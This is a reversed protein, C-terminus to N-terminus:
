PCDKLRKAYEIISMPATYKKEALKRAKEGLRKFVAVEHEAIRADIDIGELAAAAKLFCNAMGDPAYHKFRVIPVNNLLVCYDQVTSTDYDLSQNVIVLM